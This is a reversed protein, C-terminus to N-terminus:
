ATQGERVYAMFQDYQSNRILRMPLPIVEKDERVVFLEGRISMGVMGPPAYIEDATNVHDQPASTDFTFLPIGGDKTLYPMVVGALLGKRLPDGEKNITVFARM